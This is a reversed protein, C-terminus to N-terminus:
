AKLRVLSWASACNSNFLPMRTFPSRTPTNANGSGGTAALAGGFNTCPSTAPKV